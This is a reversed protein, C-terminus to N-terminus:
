VQSDVHLGTNDATSSSSVEQTVTSSQLLVGVATILIVDSHSSSGGSPISTGHIATATSTSSIMNMDVALSSSVEPAAISSQTATILIVDTHSSSAGSPVSTDHIALTTSAIRTVDTSLLTTTSSFSTTGSIITMLSPTLTSSPAVTPTSTLIPGIISLVFVNSAIFM